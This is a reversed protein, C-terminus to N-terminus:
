PGALEDEGPRAPDACQADDWINRFNRGLATAVLQLAEDFDVSDRDVLTQIHIGFLTGTFAAAFAHERKSATEPDIGEPRQARVWDELNRRHRAFLERYQNQVAGTSTMAETLAMFVLKTNGKRIWSAYDAVLENLTLPTKHPESAMGRELAREVVAIFLGHKNKFHWPISGRSIGSREAIGAISTSDFGFESFLEEAADLIRRRSEDGIEDIRRRGQKSM